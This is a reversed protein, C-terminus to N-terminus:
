SPPGWGLHFSLLDEVTIPREAPVTDDVPGDLRRLMRRDPLEPLLRDVSEDLRLKGYEIV